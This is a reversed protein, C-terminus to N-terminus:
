VLPKNHTTFHNYKPITSTINVGSQAVMLPPLVGKDILLFTATPKNLNKAHYSKLLQELYAVGEVLEWTDKAHTKEKRNIFYCLRSPRGNITKKAFVMSDIILNVEHKPQEEEEFWLKNAIKQDVAEKKIINKEM